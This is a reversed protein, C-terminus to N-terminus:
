EENAYAGSLEVYPWFDNDEECAERIKRKVNDIAENFCDVVIKFDTLSPPNEGADRANSSDALVKREFDTAVPAFEHELVEALSTEVRNPIGTFAKGCRKIQNELERNIKEIFAADKKEMTSEEGGSAAASSFRALADDVRMILAPSPVGAERFAKEILKKSSSTSHDKSSAAIVLLPANGRKTVAAFRKLRHVENRSIEKMKTRPNEYLSSCDLVFCGASLGAVQEEYKQEEMEEDQQSRPTWSKGPIDRIIIWHFPERM